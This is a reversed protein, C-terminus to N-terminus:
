IFEFYSVEGSGLDVLGSAGYRRRVEKCHKPGPLFEYTGEFFMNDPDDFPTMNIATFHVEVERSTSTFIVPLQSTNTTNCVCSRPFLISEHWPREM